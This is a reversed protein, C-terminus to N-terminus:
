DSRRLCDLWSALEGILKSHDGDVGKRIRNNGSCDNCPPAVLVLINHKSTIHSALKRLWPGIEGPLADHNGVTDPRAHAEAQTINDFSVYNLQQQKAQRAILYQNSAKHEDKEVSVWYLMTDALMPLAVWMATGIGSFLDLVLIPEDKDCKAIMPALVARTQEGDWAEGLYKRALQAPLVTQLVSTNSGYDFLSMLKCLSDPTPPAVQGARGTPFLMGEHVKKTTLASLKGEDLLEKHVQFQLKLTKPTDLPPQTTITNCLPQSPTYWQPVEGGCISRLCREDQADLVPVAATTYWARKRAALKTSRVITPVPSVGFREIVEAIAFLQGWHMVFELALQFDGTGERWGERLRAFMPHDSHKSALQTRVQADVAWQCGHRQLLCTQDPWLICDWGEGQEDQVSVVNEEDGFGVVKVEYGQHRVSDPSGTQLPHPCWVRITHGLLTFPRVQLPQQDVVFPVFRESFRGNKETYHGITM